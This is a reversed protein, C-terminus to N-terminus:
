PNNSITADGSATNRFTRISKEFVPLRGRFEEAATSYAITWITTGRKVVYILQRVLVEGVKIEAVIRGAPQSAKGGKISNDPIRTMKYEIVRLGPISAKGMLDVFVELTMTEPVTSPGVVVSAIKPPQKAAVQSLRTPSVDVAYLAITDPNREVLRALEAYQPGLAALGQLMLQTDKATPSGGRYPQPLWLEVGRGKVLHWGPIAAHLPAGPAAVIRVPSVGVATIATFGAILLCAAKM